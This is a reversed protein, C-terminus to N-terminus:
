DATDHYPFKHFAKEATTRLANMTSAVTVFPLDSAKVTEHGYNYISFTWDEELPSDCRLEMTYIPFTDEIPVSDYDPDFVIPENSPPTLFKSCFRRM